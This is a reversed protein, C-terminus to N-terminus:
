YPSLANLRSQLREFLVHYDEIHSCYMAFRDAESHCAIGDREKLYAHIEDGLAHIVQDGFVRGNIANVAHFQEINM